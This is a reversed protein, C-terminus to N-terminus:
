VTDIQMSAQLALLREVCNPCSGCHEIANAQCSFTSAIPASLALGLNAVEIKSMNRFPMELDVNGTESMLSSVGKLFASTADIERALNSNIFASLVVQVGQSAAFAAATALLFLNRYPLMLDDSSIQDVWLNPERILRSPSSRFVDAVNVVLLKSIVEHPLVNNLTERETSACHQGYDVFLPIVDYGQKIAWYALVTSDMGGSTMVIARRASRL